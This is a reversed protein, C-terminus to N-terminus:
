IKDESNQPNKDTSVVLYIATCCKNLTLIKINRHFTTGQTVISTHDTMPLRILSSHHVPMLRCVIPLTTPTDVKCRSEEEPHEYRQPNTKNGMKKGRIVVLMDMVKLMTSTRIMVMFVTRVAIICAHQREICRKAIVAYNDRDNECCQPAPRLGTIRYLRTTYTSRLKARATTSSGRRESNLSRNM